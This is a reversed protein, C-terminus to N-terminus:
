VDLSWRHNQRYKAEDFKGNEKSTPRPFVLLPSEPFKTEVTPITVPMANANPSLVAPAPRQPTSSRTDVSSNSQSLEQLPMLHGESTDNAENSNSLKPVDNSSSLITNLQPRALRERADPVAKEDQTLSDTSGTFIPAPKKKRKIGGDSSDSSGISHTRREHYQSTRSYSRFALDSSPSEGRALKAEVLRSSVQRSLSIDETLGRRSSSGSDSRSRTAREKGEMIKAPPPPQLMWRTAGKQVPLTSVVPPHLDNVPPNRTIYYSGTDEEEDKGTGLGLREELMKGSSVVSSGARVIADVFKYGTHHKETAHGQGWLEEDERQYRKVNWNEGSMREVITPSSGADTSWGASTVSSGAGATNLARTSGNKNAGKKKPPGPGLMIEEAWYQNTSFPSPHRYLGPQETELAQKEARERKATAKTKRRQSIKACTSCSLVYFAVSQLAVDLSM